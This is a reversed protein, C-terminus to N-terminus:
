WSIWKKEWSILKKESFWNKERSITLDNRNMVRILHRLPWLDRELTARQIDFTFTGQTVSHTPSHCPWRNLQEPYSFIINRIWAVMPMILMPVKDGHDSSGQRPWFQDKEHLYVDFGLCHLIWGHLIIMSKNLPNLKEWPTLCWILDFIFVKWALWNMM